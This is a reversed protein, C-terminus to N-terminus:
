RRHGSWERRRSRRCSIAWPGGFAPGTARISSPRLPPDACNHSCYSSSGAVAFRDVFDDDVGAIHGAKSRAHNAMDYNAAVSEFVAQDDLGSATAGSMGSFHAFVGVTGLIVERAKAMDPNATCNVYAGFTIGSPDLGAADRASRATDMAARIRKPDAGVAFTIREASVAALSIVRPGTAAVDIPVKPQGSEAVWTNRSAYGDIDVADGRLYQQVDGLYEEFVRVPAPERGIYALSSDGRGMGLVARGNSEVQITAIASATVSPHRTVPNTVGPGLLIRDTAAAALALASYVDGSLNQTDPFFLGDWGADEVSRAVSAATGPTPFTLYWFEAM